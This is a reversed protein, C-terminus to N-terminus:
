AVDIVSEKECIDPKAMRTKIKNMREHITLSCEDLVKQSDQVVSDFISELEANCGRCGEVVKKSWILYERKRKLSWDNPPAYTVGLINSIKDAIKIQRAMISLHPAHEIQLQKREEKPLNKDDTVEEVLERIKKGFTNELEAATTETDEITDHLIAAQLTETDAIGASNLLTVVEILHNIYPSSDADKRRQDRHKVAAFNVANLIPDLCDLEKLSNISKMNKM